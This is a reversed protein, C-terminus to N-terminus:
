DPHGPFGSELLGVPERNPPIAVPPLRGLFLTLRPCNWRSPETWVKRSFGHASEDMNVTGVIALNRPLVVASWHQDDPQLAQSILPASSYGGGQTRDRDETRSLIEAFYHEVRALNMEDLVCVFSRQPEQM